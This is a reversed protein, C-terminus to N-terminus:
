IHILSLIEEGGVVVGIKGSLPNFVQKLIAAVKKSFSMLSTLDQDEMDFIYDIHKKPVALTHGEKFPNITLFAINEEDELVKYSPINGNIIKCFICTDM